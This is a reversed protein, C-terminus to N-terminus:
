EDEVNPCLISKLHKYEEIIETFDGIISHYKYLVYHRSKLYNDLEHFLMTLEFYLNFREIEHIPTRLFRFKVDQKMKLILVKLAELFEVREEITLSDIKEFDLM